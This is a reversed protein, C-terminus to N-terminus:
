SVSKKIQYRREKILSIIKNYEEKSVSSWVPAWKSWDNNMSDALIDSASAKKHFHKKVIKIIKPMQNTEGEIESTM